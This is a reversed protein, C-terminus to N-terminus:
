GGSNRKAASSSERIVAIKKADEAVVTCPGLSSALPAFAARDVILVTPIPENWLRLLDARRTFFFHPADAEHAAGYALETKAGILIVRRRAYFPLSQIYRPYCVLRADPAREAIERALQAYSRAPEAMIRGYSAVILIAGAMAAVTAFGAALDRRWFAAFCVVGAGLMIAGAFDLASRVLMPNPSTFRNAFFGALMVGVGLLGLIPGSIALRRPDSRKAAARAFDQERDSFGLLGSAIVIALPPIAPLIYPILKASACSFLVFITAASILCFRRVPDRTLSRWPAFPVLLSWPLTGAIIVPVYYYIPQGHSYSSQFFRRLHEGVLYFDLFDPQRIAIAVFWPAVTAATLCLGPVVHFRRLAGRWDREATLFVIGAVLPIALGIPGKTLVALALAVYMVWCWGSGERWHLFFAFLAVTITATLLMDTTLVQAMLAYVASTSLIIASWFAHRSDIERRAVLYVAAVGACAASANVFRAAFENVGFARMALATLWYLLPPKEIYPVYNLHPVVLDHLVLMERAIEAYRAEDPEWLGYAGLHFFCLIAVVAVVIIAGVTERRWTSRDCGPSGVPTHVTALDLKLSAPTV